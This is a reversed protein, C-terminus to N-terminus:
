TQIQRECDLNSESDVENTKISDKDKGLLILFATVSALVAGMYLPRTVLSFVQGVNDFHMWVAGAIKAPKPRWPDPWSNNDGQTEFGSKANGGIIRHIVVSKGGSPTRVHYAIVEGVAYHDKHRVVALDGTYMTPQMSTGSVTVLTLPGGLTAPRLWTFWAAVILALIIWSM